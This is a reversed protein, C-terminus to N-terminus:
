VCIGENKEHKAEGNEWRGLISGTLNATVGMEM